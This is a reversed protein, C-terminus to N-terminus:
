RPGGAGGRRSVELGAPTVVDLVLEGVRQELAAGGFSQCPPEAYDLARRQCAYRLSRTYHTQMRSGCQGCVVLGALLAV